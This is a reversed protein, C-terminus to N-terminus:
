IQEMNKNNRYIEAIDDEVEVSHLQQRDQDSTKELKEEEEEDSDPFGFNFSKPQRLNSKSMVNENAFSDKKKPVKM